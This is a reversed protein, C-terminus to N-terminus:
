LLITGTARRMAEELTDGQGHGVKVDNFTKSDIQWLTVMVEHGRGRSVEAYRLEPNESWWEKLMALLHRNKDALETLGAMLGRLFVPLPKPAKDINWGHESALTKIERLDSMDRHPYPQSRMHIPYPQSQMLVPRAAQRKLEDIERLLEPVLTQGMNQFGIKADHELIEPSHKARLPHSADSAALRMQTLDRHAARAAETANTKTMTATM